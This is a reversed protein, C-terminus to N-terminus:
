DYILKRLRRTKYVNLLLYIGVQLYTHRWFDQFLLGNKEIIEAMQVIEYAM